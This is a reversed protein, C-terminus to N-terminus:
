ADEAEDALTNLMDAYTDLAQVIHQYKVDFQDWLIDAADRMESAVMRATHDMITVRKPTM